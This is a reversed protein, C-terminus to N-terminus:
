LKIMNSDQFIGNWRKGNKYIGDFRIRKNKDSNEIEEIKNNENNKDNDYFISKEEYYFEKGKGNKEGDLYEGEFIIKDNDYEKGM